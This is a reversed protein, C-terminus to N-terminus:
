SPLKAGRRAFREDFVPRWRDYLMVILTLLLLLFLTVPINLGGHKRRLLWDAVAVIAINILALVVFSQVASERSRGARASRLRLFANITVVVV